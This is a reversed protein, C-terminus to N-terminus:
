SANIRLHPKVPAYCSTYFSSAFIHRIIGVWIIFFRSM